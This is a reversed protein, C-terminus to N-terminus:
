RGARSPRRLDATPTAPRHVAGTSARASCIWASGFTRRSVASIRARPRRTGEFHFLAGALKQMLREHIASVLSQERKKAAPFAAQSVARVKAACGCPEAVAHAFVSLSAALCMRSTGRGGAKRTEERTHRPPRPEPNLDAEQVAIPGRAPPGGGTPQRDRRGDVERVLTQAVQKLYFTSVQGRLVLVGEGFECSM